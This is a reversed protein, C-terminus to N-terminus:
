DRWWAPTVNNTLDKVDPMPENGRFAVNFFGTPNSLGGGGGPHTPDASGQPILYRNAGADWLGAGVAMFVQSTGPDWDSHPVRIDFQRSRFLTTYPFLTSRPPRRIM